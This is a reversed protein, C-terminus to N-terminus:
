DPFVVQHLFHAQMSIWMTHCINSCMSLKPLYLPSKRPSDEDLCTHGILVEHWNNVIKCLSSSSINIQPHFLYPDQLGRLWPMDFTSNSLKQSWVYCAQYATADVHILIWWLVCHFLTGLLYQWAILSFAIKSTVSLCPVQMRLFLTTISLSTKGEIKRM